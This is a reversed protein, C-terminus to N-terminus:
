RVYEEGAPLLRLTRRTGPAFAVLGEGRMKVLLAYMAGASRYGAITAVDRLSPARNHERWFEAIASAVKIRADRRTTM